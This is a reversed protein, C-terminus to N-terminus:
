STTVFTVGTLCKLSCQIVAVFCSGLSEHGWLGNCSGDELIKKWSKFMSVDFNYLDGTRSKQRLSECKAM